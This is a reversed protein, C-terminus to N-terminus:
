YNLRIGSTLKEFVKEFAKTKWKSFDLVHKTFLHEWEVINPKGEWAKDLAVPCLIDRKQEKEKRRATQLEHVVWDSEVSAESLILLVIDHLRIARDIQKQTQGAKLDHRDLWVTFGEEELREKMKDAFKSDVHSYSIFIGTRFVGKAREEHIGYLIDTIQGGDLTPDYLKASLIEWPALGCNKLFEEPIEGRSLRLTDTGITSPGRHKVTDLGKTLSLDVNGFSVKACLAGDLNTGALSAWTLNAERLDVGSLNAERLNAARLNAWVLSAERLDAGHLNTERLNAQYLNAALLNASRLNAWRLHSSRLDARCCEAGGLDAEFLNAWVLSAKGLKAGVLNAKGLDAKRLDAGYLDAENLDMNYLNARRLNLPESPNETRWKAIAEAGQRVIALHEENAM